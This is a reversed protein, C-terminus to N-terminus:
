FTVTQVMNTLTFTKKLIGPTYTGGSYLGNRVTGGNYTGGTYVRYQAGATLQSDSFIISYYTKSPAFTLLEVGNIDEIHFLTGAQIIQTTKLLVSHQTSTNSPAQTLMSNTGSIVVFGGSIKCEGNFDIGVEFTFGSANPGHAVIVGGNFYIDGNADIADGETSSVFVYGDNIIMKSGDNTEGGLGYTTNLGDDSAKVSIDGGNIILNPTEIGEVSQTINITGGYIFISDKSKIGDDASSINIDCNYIRITSDASLAKAEAYEDPSIYIPQGTTTIHITPITSASGILMKSDVDTAKGGDGSHNITIEGDLIVVNGDINICHGAYADPEGSTNTYSAGDGSSTIELTGSNFIFNGDCSIGRGAPGSTTITIDSSNIVVDIDAKIATCYSPDFGSGSPELVVGGTTIINITCNSLYITQDSSIGKSQDGEVTININGGTINITSDAKIASQDDGTNLISLTGASIEVVASGADIGDENSTIDVTGGNMFVGDNVHIGDKATSNIVIHSQNIEIYNDSCLGHKNTALGNIELNATGFFVLEGESFFASKQDEGSPPSAYNVGDTLINNTGDELYVTIREGSQINIAPGDNNTIQVDSLHLNLKEDSYIKFMGDSAAGTLVYNLDSIGSNATVIVDAGEAQVSVGLSALPNLISATTDNYTIYVTSDAVVSFSISDIEALTFQNLGGTTQFYAVTGSENFYVSDIGSIFMGVTQNQAHIMLNNQVLQQSKMLFLIQQSFTLNNIDSLNFTQTQGNKNVVNLEQPFLNSSVFVSLLVFLIKKM